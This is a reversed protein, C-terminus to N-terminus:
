KGRAVRVWVQVGLWICGMIPMLLAAIESINAMWQYIAPNIGSIVALIAVGDTIREM